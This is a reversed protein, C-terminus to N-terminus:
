IVLVTNSVFYVRESGFTFRNLETANWKHGKKIKEENKKEGLLFSRALSLTFVNPAILSDTWNLKM